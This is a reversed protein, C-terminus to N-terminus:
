APSQRLQFVNGEPDIGDCHVLGQFTWAQDAPVLSGGHLAAERRADDLSSVSLVLKLPTNERRVPPQEVVIRQAILPAPAVIFLQFGEARLDIFDATAEEIEFGAVAAYFAGVRAIDKAYIVAAPAPHRPM